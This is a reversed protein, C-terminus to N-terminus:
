VPETQKPHKPKRKYVDDPPIVKPPKVPLPFRKKPVKKRPTRGISVGGAEAPPYPLYKRFLLDSEIM